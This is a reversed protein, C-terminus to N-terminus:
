EIVFHEGDFEYFTREATDTWKITSPTSTTDRVFGTFVRATYQGTISVFNGADDIYYSFDGRDIYHKDNNMWHYVHYTGNNKFDYWDYMPNSNGITSSNSSRWYGSIGKALVTTRDAAPNEDGERTYYTASGTGDQVIKLNSNDIVSFRYKSYYPAGAQSIVLIDDKVLYYATSSSAPNSGQTTEVTIIGDTKFERKTTTTVGMMNTATTTWTGIFPNSVGTLWYKENDDAPNDCGALVLLSFVVSLTIMSLLQKKM